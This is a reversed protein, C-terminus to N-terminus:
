YQYHAIYSPFLDLVERLCAVVESSSIELALDEQGSMVEIADIGIRIIILCARLLM